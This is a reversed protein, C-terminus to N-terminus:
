EPLKHESGSRVLARVNYGRELLLGILHRGM